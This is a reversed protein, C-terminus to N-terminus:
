STKIAVFSTFCLSSPRLLSFFASLILAWQLAVAVDWVDATLQILQLALFIVLSFNTVAKLLGRDSLYNKQFGIINDKLYQYGSLLLLYLGINIMITVIMSPWGPYSFFLNGFYSSLNALLMDCSLTFIFAITEISYFRKQTCLRYGVFVILFLSQILDGLIVGTFGILIASFTYLVRRYSVNAIRSFFFMMLINTMVDHLIIQVVSNYYYM